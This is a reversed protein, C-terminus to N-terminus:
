KIGYLYKKLKCVHTVRDEVEFVQPKEIYFEEEIVGILFTTKVGDPTFGM